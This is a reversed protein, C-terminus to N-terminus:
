QTPAAINEWRDDSENLWEKKLVDESILMCVLSEEKDFLTM